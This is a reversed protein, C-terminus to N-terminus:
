LTADYYILAAQFSFNAVIFLIAGVVPASFGILAGPVITLITFVLLFPLRRGGRDSLAGLPPSVIANIGVSIVVSITLVLQGPGQGFRDPDTLWLGIATSVVAYSFITNAFDYLAWAAPVRARGSPSLGALRGGLGGGSRKSPSTPSPPALSAM